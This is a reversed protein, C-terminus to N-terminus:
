TSLTSLDGIQDSGKDSWGKEPQLLKSFILVVYAHLLKFFFLVSHTKKVVLTSPIIEFLIVYGYVGPYRCALLTSPIQIPAMMHITTIISFHTFIIFWIWMPTITGTISFPLIWGKWAWYGMVGDIIVIWFVFITLTHSPSPVCM